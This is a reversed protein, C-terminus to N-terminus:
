NETGREAIGCVRLNLKKNFEQELKTFVRAQWLVTM